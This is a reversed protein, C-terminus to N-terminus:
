VGTLIDTLGSPVMAEEQLSVLVCLVLDCVAFYTCSANYLQNKYKGHTGTSYHGMVYDLVTEYAHSQDKDASM